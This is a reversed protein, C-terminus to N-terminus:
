YFIYCMFVSGVLVHLPFCVAMGFHFAKSTSIQECFLFKHPFIRHPVFFLSFFLKAWHGICLKGDLWCAFSSIMKSETIESQKWNGEFSTHLPIELLLSFFATLINGEIIVFSVLVFDCTRVAYPMIIISILPQAAAAAVVDKESTECQVHAPQM